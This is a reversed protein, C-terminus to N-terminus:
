NTQRAILAKMNALSRYSQALKLLSEKKPGEPMTAADDSISDALLRCEEITLDRSPDDHQEVAM